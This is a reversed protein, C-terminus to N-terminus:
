ILKAKDLQFRLLEAELLTADTGSTTSFGSSNSVVYPIVVDKASITGSFEIIYFRGDNSNLDNWKGSYANFEVVDEDGSNNPEGDYWNTYTSDSGNAWVFTGEEATDSFGIWYSDWKYNDGINNQIFNNEAASNITLLYGGLDIANQRATEWSVWDQVIYYKHDQFNGIFPYEGKLGDDLDMKSGSESAGGITFSVKSVGGNEAITSESAVIQVTPASDDSVLIIGNTGDTANESKATTSDFSLYDTSSETILNKSNISVNSGTAVFKITENDEYFSEDKINLTYSGTTEGAFIRIKKSFDVERVKKESEEIFVLNGTSPHLALDTPRAIQAVSLDGDVSGSGNDVVSLLSGTSSNYKYIYDSDRGSFYVNNSGDVVLGRKDSWGKQIINTVQPNGSQTGVTLKKLYEHDAIYLDGNSDFDLSGPRYFGASAADGRKQGM